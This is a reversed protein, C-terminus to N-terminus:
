SKKMDEIVPKSGFSWHFLAASKNQLCGIDVISETAAPHEVYNLSTWVDSRTQPHRFTGRQVRQSLSRNLAAGALGTSLCGTGFHRSAIAYRTRKKIRYAPRYAMAWIDQPDFAERNPGSAWLSPKHCTANSVLMRTRERLKNPRIDIMVTTGNISDFENM